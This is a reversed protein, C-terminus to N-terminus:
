PDYGWCLAAFSLIGLQEILSAWKIPLNRASLLERLLLGLKSALRVLVLLGFLPLELALSDIRVSGTLTPGFLCLNVEKDM